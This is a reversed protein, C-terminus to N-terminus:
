AIHQIRGDVRQSLIQRWYLKLHEAAETPPVAAYHQVDDCKNDIESVLNLRLLEQM